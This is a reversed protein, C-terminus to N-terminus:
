SHQGWCAEADEARKGAVGSEEAGENVALGEESGEQKRSRRTCGDAHLVAARVGQRSGQVMSRRAASRM